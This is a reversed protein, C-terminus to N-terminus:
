KRAQKREKELRKERRISVRGFFYFFSFALISTVAGGIGFLKTVIGAGAIITFIWYTSDFGKKTTALFNDFAKTFKSTM